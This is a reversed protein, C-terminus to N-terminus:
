LEKPEEPKLIIDIWQEISKRIRPTMGNCLDFTQEHTTSNNILIAKMEFSGPRAVVVEFTAPSKHEIVASTLVDRIDQQYSVNISGLM